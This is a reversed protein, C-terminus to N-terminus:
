TGRAKTRQDIRQQRVRPQCGGSWHSGTKARKEELSVTQIDISREKRENINRGRTRRNKKKANKVTKSQNTNLINASAKTKGENPGSPPNGGGGKIRM